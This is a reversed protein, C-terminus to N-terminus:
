PPYLISNIYAPFRSIQFHHTILHGWKECWGVMLNWQTYPRYHSSYPSTWYGWFPVNVLGQLFQSSIQCHHHPYQHYQHYQLFYISVSPPINRNKFKVRKAVDLPNLYTFMCWCVAATSSSNPNWFHAICVAFMLARSLHCVFRPVFVLLVQNQGSASLFLMYVREGCNNSMQCFTLFTM